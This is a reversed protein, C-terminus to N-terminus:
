EDKDMSPLCQDGTIYGGGHWAQFALLSLKGVGRVWFIVFTISPLVTSITLVLQICNETEPFGGRKEEGWGPDFGFRPCSPAHPTLGPDECSAASRHRSNEWAMPDPCQRCRGWAIRRVWGSGLVDKSLWQSASGDWASPPFNWVRGRM